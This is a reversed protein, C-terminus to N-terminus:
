HQRHLPNNWKLRPFRGFDRDTSCLTAGHEIALAALHADTTLNGATGFPELLEKFTAWHRETPQVLRVHPQALWDDVMSAAQEFALPNSLIRPHTAIRVFGLLVSWSLGVPENASLTTDWWGKAARHDPADRNTAYILLNLDVIRM